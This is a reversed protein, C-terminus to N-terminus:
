PEQYENRNSASDVLAMTRCSPNPLNFFFGGLRSTLRRGEPKCCLGEVVRSSHAGVLVISNFKIGGTTFDPIM